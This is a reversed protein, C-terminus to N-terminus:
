QKFPTPPMTRPQEVVHAEYLQRMGKTTKSDMMRRSWQQPQNQFAIFPDPISGVGKNAALEKFDQPTQLNNNKLIQDMYLRGSMNNTLRGDAMGFRTSM